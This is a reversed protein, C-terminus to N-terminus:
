SGAGIGRGLKDPRKDSINRRFRWPQRHDNNEIFRLTFGPAPDHRSRDKPSDPLLHQVIETYGSFVSHFDCQRHLVVLLGHRTIGNGKRLQKLRETPLDIDQFLTAVRITLDM